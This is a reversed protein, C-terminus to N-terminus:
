SPLADDDLLHGTQSSTIGHEHCELFADNDAPRRNTLTEAKLPPSAFECCEIM